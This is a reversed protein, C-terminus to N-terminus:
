RCGAQSTACGRERRSDHGCRGTPDGQHPYFLKNICHFKMAVEKYYVHLVHLFRKIAALTVSWLISTGSYM